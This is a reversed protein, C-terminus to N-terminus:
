PWIRYHVGVGAQFGHYLDGSVTATLGYGSYVGVGIRHEPAKVVVSRLETTVTNPNLNLIEIKLERRKFPNWRGYGTTIEFENRVQIDRYISDKDAFISGKSWKEDWETSYPTEVIFDVTDNLWITDGNVLVTATVGEDKTRIGAVSASALKGKYDKVSKQLWLITSDKTHFKLFAKKSSVEFARITAEQQGLKNVTTKLSDAAVSYNRGVQEAKRRQNCTDILLVVVAIVLIATSVTRINLQERM